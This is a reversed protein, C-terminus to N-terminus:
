PFLLPESSEARNRNLAEKFALLELEAALIEAPDHTEDQKSWTALLDITATDLPAALPPPLGHSQTVTRQKMVGPHAEEQNLRLLVAVERLATSGKSPLPRPSHYM